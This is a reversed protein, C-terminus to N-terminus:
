RVWSSDNGEIVGAYQRWHGGTSARQVRRNPEVRLRYERGNAFFSARLTSRGARGAVVARVREHTGITADDALAGATLAAAAVLLFLCRRDTVSM